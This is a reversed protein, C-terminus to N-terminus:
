DVQKMKTYRLSLENNDYNSIIQFQIGNVTYVIADDIWWCKIPSSIILQLILVSLAVHTQIQHNIYSSKTKLESVADVWQPHATEIITYQSCAIQLNQICDCLMQILQLNFQMGISITWPKRLRFNIFHVQKVANAYVVSWIVYYFVM